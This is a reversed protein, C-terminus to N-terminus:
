AARSTPPPCGGGPAAGRGDGLLRGARVAGRRRPRAAGPGDCSEADEIFDFYPVHVTEVPRRAELKWTEYEDHNRVDLLLVSEGRDLRPLIDGVAVTPVPSEPTETPTGVM